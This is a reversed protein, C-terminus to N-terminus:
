NLPCPPLQLDIKGEFFFFFYSVFQLTKSIHISMDRGSMIRVTNHIQSISLVLKNRIIYKM